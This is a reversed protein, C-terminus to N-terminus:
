ILKNIYVLHSTVGISTIFMLVTRFNSFNYRVGYPGDIFASILTDIYSTLKRTFGQRPKILLHIKLRDLNSDWGLIIFPYR